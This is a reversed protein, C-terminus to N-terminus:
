LHRLAGDNYRNALLGIRAATEPDSPDLEDALMVMTSLSGDKEKDPFAWEAPQYDQPNDLLVAAYNGLLTVRRQLDAFSKNTVMAELKTTRNLEETVMRGLMDEGVESISDIQRQNTEMTLKSLVRSQYINAGIFAASVLVMGAILLVIMRDAISGTIRKKHEEM